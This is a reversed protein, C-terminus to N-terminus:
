AVSTKDGYHRWLLFMGTEVGFLVALLVAATTFKRRGVYRAALRWEDQVAALHEPSPDQRQTAIAAARQERRYSVRALNTPAFSFHAVLALQFVVFVAVLWRWVWPRRSAPKQVAGACKWCSDFQDELSEKCKPCTWM